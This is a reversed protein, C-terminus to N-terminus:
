ILLELYFMNVHKTKTSFEIRIAIGTILKNPDAGVNKVTHSKNRKIVYM